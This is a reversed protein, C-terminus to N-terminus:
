DCSVGEALDKELEAVRAKLEAVQAELEKIRCMADHRERELDCILRRQVRCLDRADDREKRLRKVTQVYVALQEADSIIV